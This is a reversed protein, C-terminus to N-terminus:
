SLAKAGRVQVEANRGWTSSHSEKERRSGLIVLFLGVEDENPNLPVRLVDASVIQRYCGFVLKLPTGTSANTM